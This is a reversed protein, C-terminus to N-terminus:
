QRPQAVPSGKFLSPLRAAFHCCWEGIGFRANCWRVLWCDVGVIALGLNIPELAILIGNLLSAIIDM